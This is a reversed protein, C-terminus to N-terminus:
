APVYSLRLVNDDIPTTAVLRLPPRAAPFFPKGHGLVVPALYLQYEDLLGMEGLSHALITGGVDIQGDTRAKLDRMIGEVDDRVLTANPGVSTLTKSVVWKPLRRWAAAFSHQREGWGDQDEDWYRMVEYLGRGYVVAAVTGIRTIFHHFLTESPAFGMHDVYGDLSVNMAFIMRGM